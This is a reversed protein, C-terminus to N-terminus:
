NSSAPLSTIGIPLEARPVMSPFSTHFSLFSCLLHLDKSSSCLVSLLLTALCLVQPHPFPAPLPKWLRQPSSSGLARICLTLTVPPRSIGM